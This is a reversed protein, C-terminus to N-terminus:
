CGPPGPRIYLAVCGVRNVRHQGVRFELDWDGGLTSAGTTDSSGAVDAGTLASLSRLFEQGSDTSAVDCGYLLFDADTTLAAGWTSIEHASDALREQNFNTNGIRLSGDQGHTLLHVTSYSSADSSAFLDTLQEVGDIEASLIRVDFDSDSRSGLLDNLLQEINEVTPDVIVLERQGPVSEVNTTFQQEVLEPQPFEADPIPAATVADFLIRDELREMLSRNTRKANDKPNRSVTTEIRNFYTSTAWASLANSPFAEIGSETKQFYGFSWTFLGFPRFKRRYKGCLKGPNVYISCIFIKALTSNLSQRM